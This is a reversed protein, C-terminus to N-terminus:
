KTEEKAEELAKNILNRVWGTITRNDAQSAALIKNWLEQKFKIQLLKVEPM